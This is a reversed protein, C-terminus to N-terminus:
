LHVALRNRVDFRQPKACKNLTAPYAAPSVCMNAIQAVINNNIYNTTATNGIPGTTVSDQRRDVARCRSAETLRFHGITVLSAM